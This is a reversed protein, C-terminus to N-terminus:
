LLVKQENVLHCIPHLAVDVYLYFLYYSHMEFMSILVLALAYLDRENDIEHEM